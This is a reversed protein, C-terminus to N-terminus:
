EDVGPHPTNPTATILDRSSVRVGGKAAILREILLTKGAGAMGELTVLTGMEVAQMLREFALQQVPSLPKDSTVARIPTANRKAATTMIVSNEQLPKPAARTAEPARM